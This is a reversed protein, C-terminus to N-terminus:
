LSHRLPYLFFITPSTDLLAVTILYFLEHVSLNSPNGYDFYPIHDYLFIVSILKTLHLHILKQLRQAYLEGNLM